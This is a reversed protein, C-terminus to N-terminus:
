VNKEMYERSYTGATGCKGAGADAASATSRRRHLTAQYLASVYCLLSKLFLHFTKKLITKAM